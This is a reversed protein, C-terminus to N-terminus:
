VMSTALAVIPKTPHWALHEVLPGALLDFLRLPFLTAADYIALRVNCPPAYQFWLHCHGSAVAIVERTSNFKVLKPDVSSAFAYNQQRGGLVRTQVLYPPKKHGGGGKKHDHNPPSSPLPSDPGGGSTQSTFTSTPPNITHNTDTLMLTHRTHLSYLFLFGLCLSFSIHKDAFFLSIQTWVTLCDASFVKQTQLEL